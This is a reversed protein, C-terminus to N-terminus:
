PWQMRGCALAGSGRFGHAIARGHGGQALLGARKDGQIQPQALSQWRGQAVQDTKGVQAVPAQEEQRRGGGHRRTQAGAAAVEQGCRVESACLRMGHDHFHSRDRGVIGVLRDPCFRERVGGRIMEAFRRLGQRVV